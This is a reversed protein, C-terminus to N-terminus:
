ARSLVGVQTMRDIRRRSRTRYLGGPSWSGSNWTSRSRRSPSTRRRCSCGGATQRPSKVHLLGRSERAAGPRGRDALRVRRVTGGRDAGTRGLHQVGEQGRDPRPKSVVNIAVGRDAASWRRASGPSTSSPTVSSSSGSPPRTSSRSSRRSPAACPSSASTRAPGSWNSRSGERHGTEAVSATLLAAAVSQPLVGGAESGWRDLFAVVLARHHPSPVARAIGGRM